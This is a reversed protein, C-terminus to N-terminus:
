TKAYECNINYDDHTQGKRLFYICLVSGIVVVSYFLKTDNAAISSVFM